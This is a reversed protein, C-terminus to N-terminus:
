ISHIFDLKKDSSRREERAHYIIELKALPADLFIDTVTSNAIIDQFPAVGSAAVTV